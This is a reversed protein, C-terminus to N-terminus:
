RYFPVCVRGIVLVCQLLFRSIISVTGGWTFLPCGAFSDFCLFLCWRVIIVNVASDAPLDSKLLAGTICAEQSADPAQQPAGSSSPEGAPPGRPPGAPGQPPAGLAYPDAVYQMTVSNGYQTAM